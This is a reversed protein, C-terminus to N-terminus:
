LVLLPLTVTGTIEIIVSILQFKCRNALYSDVEFVFKDRNCNNFSFVLGVCFVSLKFRVGCALNTTMIGIAPLIGRDM